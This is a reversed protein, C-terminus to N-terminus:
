QKNIKYLVYLMYASLLTQHDECNVTISWWMTHEHTYFHLLFFNSDYLRIEFYTFKCANCIHVYAHERRYHRISPSYWLREKCVPQSDNFMFMGSQAAPMLRTILVFAQSVMWQSTDAETSILLGNSLTLSSVQWSRRARFYFLTLFLIVNFIWWCPFSVM